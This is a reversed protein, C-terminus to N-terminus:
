CLEFPQAHIHFITGNRGQSTNFSATPVIPQPLGLFDCKPHSNRRGVESRPEALTFLRYSIWHRNAMTTRTEITEKARSSIRDVADFKSRQELKIPGM